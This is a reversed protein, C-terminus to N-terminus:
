SPLEHIQRAIDQAVKRFLARTAYSPITGNAGYQLIASSSFQIEGRAVQLSLKFEGRRGFATEMLAAFAAYGPPLTELLRPRRDHGTAYTLVLAEIRLPRAGLKQLVKASSWQRAAYAAFDVRLAEIMSGQFDADGFVVGGAAVDRTERRIVREDLVAPLAALVEASPAEDSIIFQKPINPLHDQEQAISCTTAFALGFALAAIDSQKM